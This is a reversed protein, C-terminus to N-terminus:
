YILIGFRFRNGVEELREKWMHTERSGGCLWVREPWVWGVSRSWVALSPLLFHFLIKYLYICTM